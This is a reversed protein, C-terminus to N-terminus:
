SGMVEGLPEIVDGLSVVSLSAPIDDVQQPGFVYVRSPRGGLTTVTGHRTVSAPPREPRNESTHQHWFSPRSINTQPAFPVHPLLLSHGTKTAVHCHYQYPGELPDTSAVTSVRKGVM